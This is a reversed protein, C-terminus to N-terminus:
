GILSSGSPARSYAKGQQLHEPYTLSFFLYQHEFFAHYAPVADETSGEIDAKVWTFFRYQCCFLM